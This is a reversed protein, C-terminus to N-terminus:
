PRGSPNLTVPMLTPQAPHPQTTSSPTRTTTQPLERHQQAQRGTVGAPAFVSSSSYAARGSSKVPREQATSVTQATVTLM